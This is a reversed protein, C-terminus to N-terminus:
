RESKASDDYSLCAFHFDDHIIRGITGQSVGFSDTLKRANRRHKKRNKVKQEQLEVM